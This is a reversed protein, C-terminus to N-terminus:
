KWNISTATVKTAGEDLFTFAKTLKSDEFYPNRSFNQNFISSAMLTNSWDVVTEAWSSLVGLLRIFHSDDLHFRIQER